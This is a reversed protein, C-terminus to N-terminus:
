FNKQGLKSIISKEARNCATSTTLVQHCRPSPGVSRRLFGRLTRTTTSDTLLETLITGRPDHTLRGRETVRSLGIGLTIQGAQVFHPMQMQMQRRVVLSNLKLFSVIENLPFEM